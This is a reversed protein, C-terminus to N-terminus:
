NILIKVNITKLAYLIYYSIGFVYFLFKYRIKFFLQYIYNSNIKLVYMCMSILM